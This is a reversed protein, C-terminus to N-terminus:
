LLFEAIREKPDIRVCITNPVVVPVKRLLKSLGTVRCRASPTMGISFEGSVLGKANYTGKPIAKAVTAPFDIAGNKLRFETLKFRFEFRGHEDPEVYPGSRVQSLAETFANGSFHVGMLAFVGSGLHRIIPSQALIFHLSASTFMGTDVLANNLLRRPAAGGHQRIVEAVLAEGSSLATSAHSKDLIIFDDQQIVQLWPLRLLIEKLVDRPMELGPPISVDEEYKRRRFRCIGQQIDEIDLRRDAVAFLKKTAHVVRNMATDAGFWFWGLDDALWEMGEITTLIRRVDAAHIAKNISESVMGTVFHVNAAGCSRILKRSCDRVAVALGVGDDNALMPRIANGTQWFKRWTMTAVSNGLIERAFRDIDALSVHPGMLDRHEAEFDAVSTANTSGAITRLEDLCPTTFTAGGAREAMKETIQRIRERTLGYDDGTAQLTSKDPGHSGYRQAFIKARKLEQETLREADFCRSSANARALWCAIRFIENIVTNPLM